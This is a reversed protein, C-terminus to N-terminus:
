RRRGATLLYRRPACIGDGKRYSEYLDVFARHFAETGNEDLKALLALMPPATTSLLEWLEEGSGADIWLTGDHFDLEFDDELMQEVHEERGWESSERGDLPEDTFRRYLEGLKPDPKWATFGLQAGARSVRALEAAVSAHDHALIFGFDSVVADFSADDYPLHEVSGVDARLELGEEEADGRVREAIPAASDLATVDAGERAARLAIGSGGTELVLWREGERPEVRALLDDQAVSVVAALRDYTAEDWAERVAVPAYQASHAIEEVFGGAPPQVLHCRQRSSQTRLREVLEDALLVHDPRAPREPERDLGVAHRREDEEPRRARALGREGPDDRARCAGLELLERGDRRRDAVHALHQCAGALPQARRPPARDEEEVLDVAEVLGLLVRQQGRDLFPEDRQDARGGLVRVELEVRRQERAGLEVLELREALLLQELDNPAALLREAGREGLLCFPEDGMARAAVRAGREPDELQGHLGGLGLAHGGAFPVDLVRRALAREDVVLGAVRM